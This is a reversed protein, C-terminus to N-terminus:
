FDAELGALSIRGEEPVDYRLKQADDYLDKVKLFARMNKKFNYKFILDARSYDGPNVETVPIFAKRDFMAKRTYDAELAGSRYSFTVDLIRKPEYSLPKGTARNEPTQLTTEAALTFNEDLKVQGGIKIGNRRADSAFQLDSVLLGKAADRRDVYEIADSELENFLEVGISTKSDWRYNLKGSTRKKLSPILAKFGVYRRPLFVEPLDANGLDEEYAIIAQWTKAWHYDLRLVPSTRSKGMLNMGKLGFELFTKDQFNYEGIFGLSQKTNDMSPGASVSYSYKDLNLTVKGTLDKQLNVMYEAGVKGTNASAEENFRFPANDTNRTTSDMYLNGSFFAGDSLTSNGKLSFGYQNDDIAAFPTRISNTGRQPFKDYAYDGAVTLEYSGEGTSKVSGGVRTKEEGINSKISGRSEKSLKADGIYGNYVGRGSVAIEKSSSTGAGLRLSVYDLKKDKAPAEEFPKESLHKPEVFNNEPLIEPMSNAKEGMQASIEKPDPNFKSSQADKGVVHVKGLDYDDKAIAPFSVFVILILAIGLAKSQM